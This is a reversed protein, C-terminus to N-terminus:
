ELARSGIEVKLGSEFTRIAASLEVEGFKELVRTLM